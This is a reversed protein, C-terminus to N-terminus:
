VEKEKHRFNKSKNYSNKSKLERVLTSLWIYILLPAVIIIRPNYTYAEKFHLHFIESFARTIGCGWCEHGIILKFICLTPNNYIVLVQVGLYFILPLLILICINLNERRFLEFM